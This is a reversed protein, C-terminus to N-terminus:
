EGAEGRPYKHFVLVESDIEAQEFYQLGDDGDEYDRRFIPKAEDLAEITWKRHAIMDKAVAVAEAQTAREIWCCVFAGGYLQVDSANPTPLAHFRLYYM